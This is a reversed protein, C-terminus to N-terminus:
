YAIKEAQKLGPLTTTAIMEDGKSTFSKSASLSAIPISM